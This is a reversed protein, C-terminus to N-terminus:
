RNEKDYSADILHSEHDASTASLRQDRENFAIAHKYEANVIAYTGTPLFKLNDDAFAM